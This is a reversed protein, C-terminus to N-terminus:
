GLFLPDDMSQVPQPKARTRTIDLAHLRHAQLVVDVLLEIGLLDRVCNGLIFNM